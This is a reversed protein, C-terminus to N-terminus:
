KTALCINKGCLLSFGYIHKIAVCVAVHKNERIRQYFTYNNAGVAGGGGWGEIFDTFPIVTCSICTMSLLIMTGVRCINLPKQEKM